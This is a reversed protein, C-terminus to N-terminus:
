VGAKELSSITEQELNEMSADSIRTAIKQLHMLFTEVAKMESDTLENMKVMKGLGFNVMAVGQLTSAQRGIKKITEVVIKKQKDNM